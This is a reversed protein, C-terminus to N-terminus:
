RYLYPGSTFFLNEREASSFFVSRQSHLTARKGLRGWGELAGILGTVGKGNGGDPKEIQRPFGGPRGTWAHLVLNNGGTREHKVFSYM